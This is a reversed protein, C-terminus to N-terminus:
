LRVTAKSTCTEKVEIRCVHVGTLATSRVYAALMSFWLEALNESTPPFDVLVISIQEITAITQCYGNERVYDELEKWSLTSPLVFMKAIPDSIELCLSHDFIEDIHNLAAKMEHLDILM